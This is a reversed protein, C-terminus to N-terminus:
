APAGSAVKSWAVTLRWLPERRVVPQIRTVDFVLQRLEGPTFGRMVSVVGDHRTIAHFRLITAGLWFAAAALWSRRLDSIVVRRRAVRHLEAIVARADAAEFHHLLQSCAVVDVSDDAFPLRAADACAAADLASRASRLMPASVDVGIVSLRAGRRGAARRLRRPIDATGTGVDLLTTAGPQHLVGGLAREAARAGGFLRNSRTLDAMAREREADPTSADDLFEVGRRRAPTLMAFM